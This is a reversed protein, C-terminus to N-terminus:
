VPEDSSYGRPDTPNDIDTQPEGGTARVAQIADWKAQNIKIISTTGEFRIRQQIGDAEAIAAGISAIAEEVGTNFAQAENVATQLDNLGNNDNEM